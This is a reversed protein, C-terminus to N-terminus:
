FANSEMRIERKLMLLWEIKANYRHHWHTLREITAIREIVDKPGQQHLDSCKIAIPFREAM